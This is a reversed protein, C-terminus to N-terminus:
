ASPALAWLTEPLKMIETKNLCRAVGLSLAETSTADDLYASFLVIKQTPDEALIQRAVELGTMGPMKNDLVVIAPQQDRWASLAELGDAAEGSVALGQNATEVVLRVMARVDSEDDVILTSIM